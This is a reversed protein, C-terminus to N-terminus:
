RVRPKRKLPCRARFARVFQDWTEVTGGIREAFRRAEFESKWGTLAAGDSGQLVRWRCAAPPAKPRRPRREARSGLEALAEAPGPLVEPRHFLLMNPGAGAALHKRCFNKDVGVEPACRSCLPKDCTRNEEGIPFDCLAESVDGCEVCTDGLRGCLFFSEVSFSREPIEVAEGDIEVRRAPITPEHGIRYCRNQTEAPASPPHRIIM